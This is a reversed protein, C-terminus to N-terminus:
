WMGDTNIKWQSDTVVQQLLGDAKELELQLLVRRNLGYVGRRPYNPDWESPGLRGAYWGDALTAAIVNAGQRLLKTVDYSQYQIRQHYDTWEPALIHDGVKEGNIRLEYEGLATVYVMARRLEVDVTFSRRLLPSPPITPNKLDIKHKDERPAGIWQANWDSQNLLGMSWMAPRSWASPRDENDWVRVTWYCRMRSRLPEGAYVVQASQDSNVKGTDWLDPQKSSLKEESGAVMIRYASQMRGRQQSELVWSFRPRVVDIGLPNVRYECRLEKVAVSGDASVSRGCLFPVMGVFLVIVLRRM